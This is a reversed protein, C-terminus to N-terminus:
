FAPAAPPTSVDDPAFLLGFATLASGVPLPQTLIHWDHIAAVLFGILAALAPGTTKPSHLARRYFVQLAIRM